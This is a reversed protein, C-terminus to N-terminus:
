RYNTTKINGSLVPDSISIPLPTIKEKFGLIPMLLIFHAFYYITAARGILLYLGEPPKAGM